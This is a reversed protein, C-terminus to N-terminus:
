QPLSPKPVWQSVVDEGRHSVAQIIFDRGHENEHRAIEIQIDVPPLYGIGKEPWEILCLAQDIYDRIGLSELDFPNSLRYLDFHYVQGTELEYPEVLTYTPSKVTGFYDMGRLFGRVFTTKGVGLPGAITVVFEAISRARLTEALQQGLIEMAEVDYITQTIVPSIM